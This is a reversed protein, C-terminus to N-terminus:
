KKNTDSKLWFDRKLARQIDNTPAPAWGEICARKYTTRYIRGIGLKSSASIMFNFPEPCPMMICKNDLDTLSNVQSMVCPQSMSNSAGLSIALVRWIEKQVRKSLVDKTPKDKSLAFTNVIGWAQEPAVLITTDDPRDTVTIVVPNNETPRYTKESEGPVIEVAFLLTQKISAAAAQIAAPDATKQADVIRIRKGEAAKEVWGGSLILRRSLGSRRGSNKAGPMPIVSDASVITTAITITLLILKKM